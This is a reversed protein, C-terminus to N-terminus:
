MKLSIEIGLSSNQEGALGERRARGAAGPTPPGPFAPRQNAPTGATSVAVQQREGAPRRSPETRKPLSESILLNTTTQKKTKQPLHLKVLGKHQVLAVYLLAM